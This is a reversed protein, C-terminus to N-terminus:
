QRIHYMLRGVISISGNGLMKILTSFSIGCIACKDRSEDATVVCTKPDATDSSFMGEDQAYLDMDASDEAEQGSWMADSQYWGREDRREMSKELQNKRFLADLHQSMENQTGFRRGDASCVFPLGGDYLRAIVAENKEKLGETSFKSRDITKTSIM